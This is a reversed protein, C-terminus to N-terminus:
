TSVNLVTNRSRRRATACDILHRFLPQMMAGMREPHFQVGMVTGAENEIAEIVGDPATAAVQFGAGTTAVAQLHLTNVDLTDQGFLARLHSGEALLVPHTDGGRKESHVLAHPQQREVDAYITGGAIANMLQMGYCIGLVPKGAALCAGLLIKDSNLRLPDTAPLEDPLTGILGDTVAPGGPILLGDIFAAFSEISATRSLMPVIVPLGGAREVAQVYSHHLHQKPAEYSTTIGIRITM